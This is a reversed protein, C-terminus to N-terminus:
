RTEGGLGTGHRKQYGMRHTRTAVAVTCELLRRQARPPQALRLNEHTFVSFFLLIEPM